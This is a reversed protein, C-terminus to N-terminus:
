SDFFTAQMNPPFGNTVIVETFRLIFPELCFHGGKGTAQAGSNRLGPARPNLSRLDASVRDMLSAFFIEFPRRYNDQRQNQLFVDPVVRAIIKKM